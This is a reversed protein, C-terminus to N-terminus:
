YAASCRMRGQVIHHCPRAGLCGLNQGPGVRGGSIQLCERGVVRVDESEKGEETGSLPEESAMMEHVNRSRDGHTM